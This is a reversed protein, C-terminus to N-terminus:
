NFHPIQNHIAEGYKHLAKVFINQRQFQLTERMGARARSVVSQKTRRHKHQEQRTGTIIGISNQPNLVQEFLTTKAVNFM